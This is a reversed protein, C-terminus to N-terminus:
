RKLSFHSKFEKSVGNEIYNIVFWYDDAPLPQGNYNGDWTDGIQNLEKLLKGYRNFIYIKPNNQNQFGKIGWSDNYGDGNPTFFKPSNILIIPISIVSSNCGNADSITVEHNGSVVNTFTNSKQPTSGDLSYLFNNENGTSPVVNVIITQNDTFWGSSTYTISAPKSSEIVTFPVSDSPCGNPLSLDTVTLTYNGPQNTSFDSNTSLLTGDEKKWEFSYQPANFGSVVYSNTIAGTVFDVCIPPVYLIPLPKPIINIVMPKEDSCIQTNASGLYAYAYITSSSNIIDGPFKETNTNSPGGSQTFYNTIPSTYPPLIYSSCSTVPNIPAIVPTKYITITFSKEDFCYNRNADEAYVYLKTTTNIPAYPTNLKVGIGRPGGSATYYDGLGAIVPLNFTDCAYQDNIDNVKTIMVAISYESICTNPAVAAAYVYITKSSSIVYGSPLEPNTPSPGGSFEYYKGNTLQNLVYNQGCKLVEVPKADVKPSPNITILFSEEVYCSSNPAKYYFYITQTSTIPYGVPLKKGKGLSGTYYNGAHAVAPLYYVDCQPTTNPIIPLPEINITITFQLNDTCNQGPVYYWLTTTTNITTGIPVLVGGGAAATRYEGVTLPPLIYVSCSNVNQPPNISSVNVYVTFKKESFCNLPLTGTEKYVYIPTTTNIVTGAPIIPLGKNSGTYYTGGNPDVPLTYSNCDFQNLYEPLPTFPIITINFSKEQICSPTVTTDEFWVYLSNIGATNISTGATLETNGPTNTGGSKTFYKGYPLKPLIYETCYTASVPTITNLNTITVKFADQNTCTGLQNFVFLNTTASISNGAFLQTGTGNTGTWYQAGVKTLVPLKYSTCVYVDNLFDVQPLPNVKLQFSTVAFCNPNSINQLRVWITTSSSLLQNSLNPQIINTNNNAGALSSHFTIINYTPDQLGLVLAKNATFDFIAKPPVDILNQACLSIDSPIGAIVASPVIQLQFSRVVFCSTIPDEIRVYIIKGSESSLITYPSAIAATKALADANTLYYTILTGSPLDDLIGVANTAQNVGAMIIATNKTLDFDYSAAGSDCTYINPIVSMVGIAPLIEVSIANTVGVCSPETYTVSYHHIGSAPLPNITNLDLTSGTQAPSFDVGENQWVFTTGPNLGAASLIPLPSGPCIARNNASTYDLGLVDQGINFSNAKLFIASDYGTNNGGDAIVLKIRYIHNTNLGTASALMEVTQGNFNIAPGFGSGNFAGFFNPNESPCNSNYTNDRITAVSVPISTNPIVALNVNSGGSTVDKLLFAFADSFNCQSTGYEESAFLFSFDFNSTKPQFDFQIYSANISNITIGSQSLLNSELDPDGLWANSGDSLISNNPSPVKTVDGTTLVVGNSFPFNPNNNEFYGIGNTSGYFTGTKSIINTASVCPSNILIQNVLQDVTYKTTNITVSQSFGTFVIMTLIFILIKQM